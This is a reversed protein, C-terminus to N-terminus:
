FGFQDAAVIQYIDKVFVDGGATTTNTNVLAVGFAGAFGLKSGAPTNSVTIAANTGIRVGFGNTYYLKTSSASPVVAIIQNYRSGGAMVTWASETINTSGYVILRMEKVGSSLTRTEVAWGNAAIGNTGVNTIATNFASRSAASSFLFRALRNTGDPTLQGRFVIGNGAGDVPYLSDNMVSFSTGSFIASVSSNADGTTTAYIGAVAVDITGSNNTFVETPAAFLPAWHTLLPMTPYRADGLDRTMLSSGSSATQSPATNATGGLAVDTLDGRAAVSANTAGTAVLTAAQNAGLTLPTGGQITIGNTNNITIPYDSQNILYYFAGLRGNAIRQISYNFGSGTNNNTLRVVNANDPLTLTSSTPPASNTQMADLVWTVPESTTLSRVTLDNLSSIPNNIQGYATTAAVLLILAYPTKM